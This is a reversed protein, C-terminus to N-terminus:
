PSFPNPLQLPSWDLLDLIPSGGAPYIVPLAGKALKKGAGDLLVQQPVINGVSDTNTLVNGTADLYCYGNDILKVNWGDRRCKLPYTVRWYKVTQGGYVEFVQEYEIDGMCGNGVGINNFMATANVSNSFNVARAAPNTAENRTITFASGRIPREPLGDYVLGVSNVIPKNDTTKDATETLGIPGGRIEPPRNIPNPDLGANNGYPKIMSWKVQWLAIGTSVAGENAALSPSIQDAYVLPDDIRKDGRKPLRADANYLLASASFGGSFYVQDITTYSPGGEDFSPTDSIRKVDTIAFAM